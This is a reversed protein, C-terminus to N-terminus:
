LWPAGTTDVTHATWDHWAGIAGKDSYAAQPTFNAIIQAKTKGVLWADLDSYGTGTFYFTYNTSATEVNNADTGGSGAEVQVLSAINYTYTNNSPVTGIASIDENVWPYGSNATYGLDRVLTNRWVYSDRGGRIYIGHSANTLILNDYIKIGDFYEGAVSIDDFFFGQFASKWTYTTDSDTRFACLVNDYIEIGTVDPNGGAWQFFDGHGANGLDSWPSHCYNGAITVNHTGNFVACDGTFNYWENNIMEVGGSGTAAPINLLRQAGHITCYEFRLIGTTIVTSSGNGAFIGRWPQTIGPDYSTTNARIVCHSFTTGFAGGPAAIACAGVSQDAHDGFPAYFDIYEFRMNAGGRLITKYGVGGVSKTLLLVPMDTSDAAKVTVLSTYARNRWWGMTNDYGAVPGGYTAGRMLVTKGGMNANTWTLASMETTSSVTYTSAVTNITLTFTASDGAENTGKCGTWVYQADAPVASPVITDGVTTFHNSGVTRTGLTISDIPGGSSQFKYAGHGTLTLRGFSNITTAGIAPVPLAAAEAITVTFEEDHTGYDNTARVTIAETTGGLGELSAQVTVDGNSAVAFYDSPTGVESFTLNDQSGNSSVVFALSAVGANEAVSSTSASLDSPPIGMTPTQGVTRASFTIQM